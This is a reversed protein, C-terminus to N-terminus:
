KTWKSNGGDQDLYYCWVIDLALLGYNDVSELIDRSVKSLSEFALNMIFVADKYNDEKMFKKGKEHLTLGVTLSQRQEEPLAVREGNQNTLEIYYNANWDFGDNTKEALKMAAEKIEQLNKQREIVEDVSKKSNKNKGKDDNDMEAQKPKPRKIEPKNMLIIKDNKKIKLSKLTKDAIKDNLMKGKCLL